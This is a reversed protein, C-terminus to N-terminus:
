VQSNLLMNQLVKLFHNIQICIHGTFFIDDCKSLSLESLTGSRTPKQGNDYRSLSDTKGIIDTYFM